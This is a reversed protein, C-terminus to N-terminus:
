RTTGKGQVLEAIRDRGAAPQGAMAFAVAAQRLAELAIGGIQDHFCLAGDAEVGDARM